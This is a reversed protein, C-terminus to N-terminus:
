LVNVRIFDGGCAACLALAAAADNRLVNFGLLPPSPVERLVAAVATGARAMAAVTVPPVSDKHFPVDGFNEVVVASFGAAANTRADSIARNLLAEWDRNWRPAGPLAPLHVVGVLFPRPLPIM